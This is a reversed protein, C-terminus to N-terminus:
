RNGVGFSLADREVMQQIVIDPRIAGIYRRLAAGELFKWHVRYLEAFSANFLPSSATCFSDCLMLVTQPNPAGPTRTLKIARQMVSVDGGAGDAVCEGAEGSVLGIQAVCSEGPKALSIRYNVEHDADYFEQMKLLRALDGAPGTITELTYDVSVVDAGFHNRLNAMIADYSAAAGARTWHTDTMLYAQRTSKLRQMEPRLDLVPVELTAAADLLDDTVTRPAATAGVPLMEPYVSHKNPAIVTALVAGVGIVDAQLRALRQARDAILGDPVPWKGTTKAMADGDDDGLFLYGERGIQARGPFLSRDCCTMALYSLNGEIRDVSWLDRTNEPWLPGGIYARSALNAAPLALLIAAAITAFVTLRASYM